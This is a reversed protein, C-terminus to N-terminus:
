RVYARIYGKKTETKKHKLDSFSFTQEKHEKKEITYDVVECESLSKNKPLFTYPIVKQNLPKGQLEISYDKYKKLFEKVKM